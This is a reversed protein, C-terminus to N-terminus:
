LRCRGCQSGAQESAEGIGGPDGDEQAQEVPFAPDAIEHLGHPPRLRVHGAM